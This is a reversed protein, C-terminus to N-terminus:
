GLRELNRYPVTVVEGRELRVQASTEGANEDQLTVVWGLAGLFPPRAIRVYDGAALPREVSVHAADAGAPLPINLAPQAGDHGGVVLAADGDHAVLLEWMPGAMPIVGLGDTVVVALDLQAARARLHEALGGLVLGAARFRAARLLARSDLCQGAVVIRGRCTLDVRTWNLPEGASECRVTLPGYADGGSGWVGLLRAVTSRIVAGVGPLVRSVEGPLFAPLELTRETEQVFIRGGVIHSVRGTVPARVTRWGMFGSAALTQGSAVDQGVEVRLCLSLRERRIGLAEAADIVRLAGSVAGRAIMADSQVVDGVKVLVEGPSPLRREHEIVTQAYLRSPIPEARM